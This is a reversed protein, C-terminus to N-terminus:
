CSYLSKKSCALADRENMSLAHMVVRTDHAGKHVSCMSAAPMGDQIDHGADHSSKRESVRDDHCPVKM